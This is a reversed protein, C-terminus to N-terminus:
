KRLLDAMFLSRSVLLQTNLISMIRSIERENMFNLAKKNVPISEIKDAFMLARM